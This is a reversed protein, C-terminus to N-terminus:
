FLSDIESDSITKLPAESNEINNKEVTNLEKSFLSDIESKTVSRTEDTDKFLDDIEEETVSEHDCESTSNVRSYASLRANLKIDM